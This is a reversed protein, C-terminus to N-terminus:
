RNSRRSVFTVGTDHPVTHVLELGHRVCRNTMAAADLTTCYATLVADDELRSFGDVVADMVQEADLDPLDLFRVTRPDDDVLGPERAREEDYPDRAAPV